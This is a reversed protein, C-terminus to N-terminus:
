SRVGTKEPCNVSQEHPSNQFQREFGKVRAMDSADKMVEVCEDTLDKVHM